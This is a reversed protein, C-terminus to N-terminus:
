LADKISKFFSHIKNVDKPMNACFEFVQQRMPEKFEVQALDQLTPPFYSYGAYKSTGLIMFVLNRLMAVDGRLDSPEVPAEANGFDIIDYRNLTQDYMVNDQKIDNHAIKLSQLTAVGQSIQCIADLRQELVMENKIRNLTFDYKHLVIMNEQGESAPFYAKPHITLGVSKNEWKKSLEFENSLDSKLEKYAKKKSGWSSLEGVKGEFIHALVSGRYYTKTKEIGQKTKTHIITDEQRNWVSSAENGLNPVLSYNNDFNM